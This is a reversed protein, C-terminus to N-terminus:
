KKKVLRKSLIWSGVLIVVPMIRQSYIIWREREPDFSVGPALGSMLGFLMLYVFLVFVIRVLM